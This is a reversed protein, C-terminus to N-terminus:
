PERALCCLRSMQRREQKSRSPWQTDAAHTITVTSDRETECGPYSFSSVALVGHVICPLLAYCMLKAHGAFRSSSHLNVALSRCSCMSDRPAQRRCVHGSRASHSFMSSSRGRWCRQPAAAHLRPHSYYMVAKLAASQHKPARCARLWRLAAPQRGKLSAKNSSAASM